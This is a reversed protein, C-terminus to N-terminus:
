RKWLISIQMKRTKHQASCCSRHGIKPMGDKLEKGRIYTRDNLSVHHKMLLHSRLIDPITLYWNTKGNLISTTYIQQWQHAKCVDLRDRCRACAHHRVAHM